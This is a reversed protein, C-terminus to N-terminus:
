NISVVPVRRVTTGEGTTDRRWFGILRRRSLGVARVVDSDVSARKSRTSQHTALLARLVGDRTMSWSLISQSSFRRRHFTIPMRRSGDTTVERASFSYRCPLCHYWSCRTPDNKSLTRIPALAGSNTLTVLFGRAFIQTLLM